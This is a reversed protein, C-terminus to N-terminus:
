SVGISAQNQQPDRELSSRVASAAQRNPCLAREVFARGFVLTLTRQAFGRSRCGLKRGESTATLLVLLHIVGILVAALRRCFIM